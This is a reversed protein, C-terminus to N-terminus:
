AIVAKTHLLREFEAELEDQNVYLVLKNAFIRAQELSMNHQLGENYLWRRSEDLTNLDEGYCTHSYVNTKKRSCKKQRILSNEALKTLHQEMSYSIGTRAM